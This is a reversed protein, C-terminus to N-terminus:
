WDKMRFVAYKTAEKGLAGVIGVAAVGALFMSDRNSIVLSAFMGHHSIDTTAVGYETRFGLTINAKKCLPSLGPNLVEAQLKYM